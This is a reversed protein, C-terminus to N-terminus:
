CGKGSAGRKCSASPESVCGRGSPRKDRVARPNSGQAERESYRGLVRTMKHGGRFPVTVGDNDNLQVHVEASGAVTVKWGPQLVMWTKRDLERRAIRVNNFTIFTGFSNRLYWLIGGGYSGMKFASQELESELM